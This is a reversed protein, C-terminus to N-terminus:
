REFYVQSIKRRSHFDAGASDYRVEYTPDAQISVKRSSPQTSSNRDGPDVPNLM